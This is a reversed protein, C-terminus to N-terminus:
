KCNATPINIVLSKSSESQFLLFDWLFLFSVSSYREIHLEPLKPWGRSGGQYSMDSRWGDCVWPGPRQWGPVFFFLLFFLDMYNNNAEYLWFWLFARRGPSRVNMNINYYRWSGCSTMLTCPLSEFKIGWCCDTNQVLSVTHCPNVQFIQKLSFLARRLDRGNSNYLREASLCVCVCWVLHKFTDDTSLSCNKNLLAQPFHAEATYFLLRLLSLVNCEVCCNSPAGDCRGAGTGEPPSTIVRQGAADECLM